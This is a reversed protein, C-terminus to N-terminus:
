FFFITTEVSTGRKLKIANGTLILEGRDEPCTEPYYILYREFLGSKEILPSLIEFNTGERGSIKPFNEYLGSM